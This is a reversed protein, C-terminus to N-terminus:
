PAAGQFTLLEERYYEYQQRRANIEAPLGDNMCNILGEFRDLVASIRRQTDMAPIPIKLRKLGAMNVSQFGSVNTNRRCWDGIIFCYYYFYGMDLSQAHEPRLSLVTFQQNALFDVTILAHEGITATTSLIISNARFLRGGKVAAPTVHQSADSLIRGNTRIDDMRFWPLSGDRWYEGNGKSPTYGNKMDFIEELTLWRVARGGGLHM